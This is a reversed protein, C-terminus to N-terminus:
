PWVVMTAPRSGALGHHGPGRPVVPWIETVVDNEVVHFADYMNVTSPAYGPVLTVADGVKLPCTRECSFIGHEEDLRVTQSPHGRMRIPSFDGVGISKSGADVIIRGASRSIVTAQVTLAVDFGDIMSGHDGDMVAYTGAQVETVGPHGATWDWTATGGASRIPCPIGDNELVEAVHVFLNMARKAARRRLDRDLIMSCHGEYGTVGRLVLGELGEVQRALQLALDPTAVGGRGMGTDIEIMVGLRTGAARAAKALETANDFDDIAVMLDVRRALRALFKVKEVGAVTNVVFIHDLGEDAFVGAEWVTAVSLGIAGAAVQLRALEPNKHVKVHPRLDAGLGRIHQAMRDINRRAVPLDLVLSPTVLDSRHLGIAAGYEERVRDHTWALVGSRPKSPMSDM